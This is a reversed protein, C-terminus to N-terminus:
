KKVFFLALFLIQFCVMKRFFYTQCSKAQFHIKKRFFLYWFMKRIFLLKISYESHECEFTNFFEIKIMEQGTLKSVRLFYFISPLFRTANIRWCIGRHLTCYSSPSTCVTSPNISFLICLDDSRCFQKLENGIVMSAIKYWSSKFFLSIHM